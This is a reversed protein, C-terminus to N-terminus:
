RASGSPLTLLVSQIQSWDIRSSWRRRSLAFRLETIVHGGVRPARGQLVVEVLGALRLRASLTSDLRTPAGRPTLVVARELRM